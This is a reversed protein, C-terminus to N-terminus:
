RQGGGAEMLKFESGTQEMTARDDSPWAEIDM